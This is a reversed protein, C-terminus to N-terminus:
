ACENGELPLIVTFTTGVGMESEVTIEGGHLDVSQKVIVLGLGTGPIKGVNTARHFSKFLCEQDEKPIGIGYDQIVFRVRPPQFNLEFRVPKGNPSYKVANSLLNILIHRLLKEDMTAPTPTGRVLYEVTHEGGLSLQVEEVLELGFQSLNLPVPNFSLKGAEAKAVLLVEELLQLMRQISTKIRRWHTQKKEQSWKHDYVELMETSSFIATLPTRFEHSTLSIFHSKLQLLEESQQLAEEIHQRELLEQQLRENTELLTQEQASLTNVLKNLSWSLRAVEDHGCLVPIKVDTEGRRVSDALAAIAMLPHTIREVFIWGLSAFILGLILGWLFIQQQLLTATAFAIDTPQRVLVRWGLGPYDNFGKTQEFGFLYPTGDSGTAVWYGITPSRTNTLGELTLQEGQEKPPGLLVTGNSSVIFLEVQRREQQPQLLQQEVKKAWGWFLHAGLVGQFKGNEDFVTAAVDVFRLPETTPNPLLKELLLAKHVDGVFPQVIGQKELAKTKEFWPRASVDQGELIGQTSAIVQGEPNTLGIWAYDPYTRQLTDLLSRKKEIPTDPNQFTELSAVIKIERYREFMGRDLLEATNHALEVLAQGQLAKLKNATDHSITFSTLSSFILALLAIGLGLQSPLRRRVNLHSAISRLSRTLLNPKGVRAGLRSPQMEVM